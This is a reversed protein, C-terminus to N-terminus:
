DDLDFHVVRDASWVGAPPLINAFFVIHPPRFVKVVSNYKTSVIIGNKLKEAFSYLHASLEAQSRTIDFLVVSQKDYMYAMDTLRGELVIANRTAVLHRCLASKGQGGKTDTVWFITRDNPEENLHELVDTQWPRLVDLSPPKEEEKLADVVFAIGKHYRALAEPQAEACAKKGGAAYAAIAESLDSRRGKGLASPPDGWHWPGALHTDEKEIYEDAEVETGKMIEFHCGACKKKLSSLRQNTDFVCWGQLHYTGQAGQEVSFGGKKGMVHKAHDDLVPNNHTFVWRTSQAM